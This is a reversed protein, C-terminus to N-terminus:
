IWAGYDWRTPKRLTRQAVLVALSYLSTTNVAQRPSIAFAM